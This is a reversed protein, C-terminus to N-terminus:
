NRCSRRLGLSDSCTVRSVMFNPLQLHVLSEKGAQVKLLSMIAEPLAAYARKESSVNGYLARIDAVSPTALIKGEVKHRPM